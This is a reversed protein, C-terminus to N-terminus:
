GHMALHDTQNLFQQKFNQPPFIRVALAAFKREALNESSNKPVAHIGGGYRIISGHRM